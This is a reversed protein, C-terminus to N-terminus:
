YRLAQARFVRSRFGMGLVMWAWYVPACYTTPKHALRKWRIQSKIDCTISYKIKEAEPDIWAHQLAPLNISEVVVEDNGTVYFLKKPEIRMLYDSLLYLEM